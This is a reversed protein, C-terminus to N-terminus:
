FKPYEHIEKIGDISSITKKTLRFKYDTEFKTIRDKRYIHKISNITIKNYKLDSICKDTYYLYENDIGCCNVNLDFKDTITEFSFFTEQVPVIDLFVFGGCISELVFSGSYPRYKYGNFLNFPKNKIHHAIEDVMFLDYENKIFNYEPNIHYRLTDRVAGGLLLIKKNVDKITNPIENLVFKYYFVCNELTPYLELAEKIPIKVVKSLKSHSSESNKMTLQM